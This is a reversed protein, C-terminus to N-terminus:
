PEELTSYDFPPVGKEFEDVAREIYRSNKYIIYKLYEVAQNYGEGIRTYGLESLLRLAEFSIVQINSRGASQIITEVAVKYQTPTAITYISRTDDAPDITVAVESDFGGETKLYSGGQRYSAIFRLAPDKPSVGVVGNKAVGLVIPFDPEIGRQYRALAKNIAVLRDELILKAEWDRQGVDTLNKEYETQIGQLYEESLRAYNWDPNGTMEAYAIATGLGGQGIGMYIETAKKVFRRNFNGRVGEGIHQTEQDLLPLATNRPHLGRQLVSGLVDSSTGHSLESFM